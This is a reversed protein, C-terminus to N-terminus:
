RSVSIASRTFGYASLAAYLLNCPLLQRNCFYPNVGAM